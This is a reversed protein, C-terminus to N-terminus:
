ISDARIGLQVSFLGGDVNVAGTGTGLHEDTLLLTGADCSLGGDSNYFSFRMDFTGSVPADNSDRLVGQYNIREPPDVALAAGSFCACLIGILAFKKM